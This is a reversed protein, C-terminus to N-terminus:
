NAMCAAMLLPQTDPTILFDSSVVAWDTIGTPTALSQGFLAWDGDLSGIAYGDTCCGIWRTQTRGGTGDNPNDHVVMLALGDSADVLFIQSLSSVPLPGDNLEGNYSAANPSGYQYFDAATMTTSFTDINGLVNADFDGAGALSEQSIRILSAQIDSSMGAMNVFMLFAVATTTIVNKM